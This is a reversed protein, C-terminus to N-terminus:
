ARLNSRWIHERLTNRSCRASSRSSPESLSLTHYPVGEFITVKLDAACSLSIHACCADRKHLYYTYSHTKSLPTSSYTPHTEPNPRLMHQISTGTRDTFCKVCECECVCVNACRGFEIVALVNTWEDRVTTTVVHKASTKKGSMMAGHLAPLTERENRVHATAINQRTRARAKRVCVCVCM